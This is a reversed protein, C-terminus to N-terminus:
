VYLPQLPVSLFASCFFLLLASFVLCLLLFRVFDFLHLFFVLRCLDFAVSCPLTFLFCYREDLVCQPFRFILLLLSPHPPPPFLRRAVLHRSRFSWDLAAGPPLGTSPHIILRHLCQRHHQLLGYGSWIVVNAEGDFAGGRGSSSNPASVRVNSGPCIAELLILSLLSLSLLSHPFAIHIKKSVDKSIFSGCEPGLTM